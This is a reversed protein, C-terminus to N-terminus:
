SLLLTRSKGADEEENCSYGLATVVRSSGCDSPKGNSKLGASYKPTLSLSSMHHLRASCDEKRVSLSVVFTQLDIVSFAKPPPPPPTMTM